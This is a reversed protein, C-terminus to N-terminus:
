ISKSKSHLDMIKPPQFLVKVKPSKQTKGQILLETTSSDVNNLDDVFEPREGIRFIFQPHEKLFLMLKGGILSKLSFDLM